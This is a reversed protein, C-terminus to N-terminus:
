RRLRRSGPSCRLSRLSGYVWRAYRAFCDFVSRAGGHQPPDLPRTKRKRTVVFYAAALRSGRPALTALSAILCPLTLRHGSQAINGHNQRSASAGANAEANRFLQDLNSTLRDDLVGNSRHLPRREDVLDHHHHRRTVEVFNAGDDLLAIVGLDRLDQFTGLGAVIRSCSCEGSETILFAVHQQM